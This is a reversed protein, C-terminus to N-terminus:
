RWIHSATGVRAAFADSSRLLAVSDAALQQRWGAIRRRSGCLPAPAFAVSRNDVM